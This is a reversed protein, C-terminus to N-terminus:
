RGGLFKRKKVKMDDDKLGAPSPDYTEYRIMFVRQDTGTLSVQMEGPLFSNGRKQYGDMLVKYGVGMGPELTYERIRKVPTLDARVRKTGRELTIIPNETESFILKEVSAKSDPSTVSEVLRALHAELLYRLGDEVENTSMGDPLRDEWAFAAGDKVVSYRKNNRVLEFRALSPLKAAATFPWSDWRGDKTKLELRGTARFTEAAKMADAGGYAALIEEQLSKARAALAATSPRFNFEVKRSMGEEPRFEHSENDPLYDKAEASVSVNAGPALPHDKLTGDTTVGIQSKNLMVACDVPKCVVTLLTKKPPPPPPPLETPKAEPFALPVGAKIAVANLLKESAGTEKLTQFDEPTPQFTLGYSNIRRIVTAENLVAPREQITKLNDLLRKMEFPRNATSTAGNKSPTTPPPTQATVVPLAMVAAIVLLYRPPVIKKIM